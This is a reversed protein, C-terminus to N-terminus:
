KLKTNCNSCYNIYRLSQKRPLSKKCVPCRWMVANIVIGSIFLIIGISQIAINGSVFSYVTGGILMILGIITILLSITICKIKKNFINKIETDDM